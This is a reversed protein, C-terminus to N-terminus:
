KRKYENIYLKLIHTLIANRLIHNRGKSLTNGFVIWKNCNNTMMEGWEGTDKKLYNVKRQKSLVFFICIVAHNNISTFDKQAAYQDLMTSFDYCFIRTTYPNSIITGLNRAHNSWKYGSVHSQYLELQAIM